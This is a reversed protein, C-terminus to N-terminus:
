TIDYEAIKAAACSTTRIRVVFIVVNRNTRFRVLFMSRCIEKICISRKEMVRELRVYVYREHANVRTSLIDRLTDRRDHLVDRKYQILTYIIITLYYIIVTAFLYRQLMTLLGFLCRRPVRESSPLANVLLRKFARWRNSFKHFPSVALPLASLAAVIVSDGLLQLRM